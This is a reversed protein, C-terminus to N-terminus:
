QNSNRELKFNLGITASFMYNSDLLVSAYSIKTFPYIKSKAFFAQTYDLGFVINLDSFTNDNKSQLINMSVGGSLSAPFGSKVFLTKFVEFNIQAMDYGPVYSIGLAVVPSENLKDKFFYSLGIVASSRDAESVYGCAVGFGKKFYASVGAANADSYKSGLGNLYFASIGNQDGFFEEQSYINISSVLLLLILFLKTKFM